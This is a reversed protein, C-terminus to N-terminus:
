KKFEAEDLKELIKVDTEAELYKKGDRKVLMKKPVLLGNPDKRYDLFIREETSKTGTMPDRIQYEVKALCNTAKDFYLTVDSVGKASVRVGVAPKGEVKVEDVLSLEYGKDRVLTVLRSVKIMHVADKMGEKIEDTATMTEGNAQITITGGNVITVIRITQGGITVEAAEKFKDPLQYSAQGVYEVDGLNPFVLKGKASMQGARYKGLADEGGHAKIARAILEKPDDAARASAPLLVLVAAFLLSTVPRSM